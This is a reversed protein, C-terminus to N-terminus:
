FNHLKNGLFGSGLYTMLMALFGVIVFYATKRGRWGLVMRSHLYAAYILWTILTWTQKPEWTWYAGWVREAWLAGSVIGLTLLPFGVSVFRYSLNEIDELSPSPVFAYPKKRKLLREQVLYVIAAVFALTFIGYGLFNFALHLERWPPLLAAASPTLRKGLSTGLALAILALPQAVLSFANTKYYFSAALDIVMLIASFLFLTEATSGFPFQADRVTRISEAAVLSVLAVIVALTAFATLRRGRIFLYSFQALTALLLALTSLNLLLKDM